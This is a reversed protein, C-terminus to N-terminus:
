VRRAWPERASRGPSRSAPLPTNARKCPGRKPRPLSSSLLSHGSPISHPPGLRQSERAKGDASPKERLDRRSASDGPGSRAKGRARAAAADAVGDEAPILSNPKSKSSPTSPARDIQGFQIM